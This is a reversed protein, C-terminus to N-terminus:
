MASKTIEENIKTIKNLIVNIGGLKIITESASELYYTINVICDLSTLALQDDPSNILLLLINLEEKTLERILPSTKIECTISQITKLTEILIRENYGYGLMQFLISLKESPSECTGLSPCIQILASYEEPNLQIAKFRNKNAYSLRKSKRLDVAFKERAFHSNVIPGEFYHQNRSSIRENTNLYGAM